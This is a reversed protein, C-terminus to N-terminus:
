VLLQTLDTITLATNKAHENLYRQLEMAQSQFYCQYITVYKGQQLNTHKQTFSSQLQKNNQLSLNHWM